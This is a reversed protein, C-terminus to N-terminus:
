LQGTRQGASPQAYVARIESKILKGAANRPLPEGAIWVHEPVKFAALTAGVWDRIAEASPSTGPRPVVVAGVLEGLTPDPVGVVAAETIGPHDALRNEIEACYM